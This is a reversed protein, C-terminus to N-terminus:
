WRSMVDCVVFTEASEVYFSRSDAPKNKVYFFLTTLSMDTNELSSSRPIVYFKGHPCSRARM